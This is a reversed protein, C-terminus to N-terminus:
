RESSVNISKGTSQVVMTVLYDYQSRASQLKLSYCKWAFLWIDRSLEAFRKASNQSMTYNYYNNLKYSGVHSKNINM